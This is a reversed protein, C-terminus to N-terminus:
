DGHDSDLDPTIDIPRHSRWEQHKRLESLTKYLVRNLDDFARPSKESFLLKHLRAEKAAHRAIEISHPNSLM